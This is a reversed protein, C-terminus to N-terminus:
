NGANSTKFVDSSNIEQLEDLEFDSGDDSRPREDMQSGFAVWVASLATKEAPTEAQFTLRCNM